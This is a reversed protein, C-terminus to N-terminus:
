NVSRGLLRRFFRAIAERMARFLAPLLRIENQAPVAAVAEGGAPPAELRQKTSAVFQQFLQKSVGQIMGRGVQMIRGTLDITANTEIETGGGELARLRSSLTGKAMGGGTERGEAAMLISRGAEDVETLQVRGKYNASVAGVKVKVTGLFTRDDVVEDLTAGPICTVVQEPDMMFRWVVDVSVPVQFKEEIKIAM